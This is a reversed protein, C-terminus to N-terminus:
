AIDSKIKCFHIITKARSIDVNDTQSHEDPCNACVVVCNHLTNNSYWFPM